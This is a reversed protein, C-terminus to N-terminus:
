WHCSHSLWSSTRRNSVAHTEPRQPTGLARREFHFWAITRRIIQMGQAMGFGVSAGFAGLKLMGQGMLLVGFCYQIEIIAAIAVEGPHKAFRRWEMKNFGKELPFGRWIHCDSVTIRCKERSFSCFQILFHRAFLAPTLNLENTADPMNNERIRTRPLRM